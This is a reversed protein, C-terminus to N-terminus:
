NVVSIFEKPLLAEITSYEFGVTEISPKFCDALTVFYIDEDNPKPQVFMIGNLPILVEKSRADAVRGVIKEKFVARIFDM